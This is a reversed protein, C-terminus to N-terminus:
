RSHRFAIAFDSASSNGDEPKSVWPITSSSATATPSGTM